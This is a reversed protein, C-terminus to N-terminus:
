FYVTGDAGVVLGIASDTGFGSALLATQPGAVLYVKGGGDSSGTNVYNKGDAGSTVSM